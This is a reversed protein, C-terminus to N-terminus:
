LFAARLLRGGSLLFLPMVTHRESARGVEAGVFRAGGAVVVDYSVLSRHVHSGEKLVGYEELGVVIFDSKEVGLQGLLFILLFLSVSSFM